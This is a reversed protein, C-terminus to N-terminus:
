STVIVEKKKRLQLPVLTFIIAGATLNAKGYEYFLDDLIIVPLLQNEHRLKKLWRNPNRSPLKGTKEILAIENLRRQTDTEPQAYIQSM